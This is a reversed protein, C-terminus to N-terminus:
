RELVSILRTILANQREFFFEEVKARNPSRYVLWTHYELHPRIVNPEITIDFWEDSNAVQGRPFLRLSYLAVEDKVAQKVEKLLTTDQFIRSFVEIPSRKSRVIMESIVESYRHSKDLDVALDINLIGLIEDYVKRISNLSVGEIGVFGKESNVDVVCGEKEAIPGSIYSLGGRPPHPPLPPARIIYDRKRLAEIVDPATLPFIIFKLVTAIRLRRTEVQISGTNTSTAPRSAERM